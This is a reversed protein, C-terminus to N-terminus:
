KWKESHMKLVYGTGGKLMNDVKKSGKFDAAKQKMLGITSVYCYNHQQFINSKLCSKGKRKLLHGM